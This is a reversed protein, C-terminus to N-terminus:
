WWFYILLYFISLLCITAGITWRLMM